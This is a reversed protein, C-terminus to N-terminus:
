HDKVKPAIPSAKPMAPAPGSRPPPSALMADFANRFLRSQAPDKALAGVFTISSASFVHGGHGTVHYVIDAGKGDPNMGRAILEGESAVGPWGPELGDTEWGSAGGNYGRAGFISGTTLGTGALLPHSADAMVKFPQHNKVVGKYVVSLLQSGPYGLSSMPERGGLPVKSRTAASLRAAEKASARFTVLGTAADIDVKEYLGNGGAYVLSGGNHLHAYLGQRMSLSWYECHSALLAVRYGAFLDPNRHLDVDDYVDVRYGQKALWQLLMIDSYLSAELRGTPGTPKERSPRALNLRRQHGTLDRCYQSHGGWNNYAHHTLSPVVFAIDAKRSRPGPNVIFPVDRRMGHPGHLRVAYLGSAFGTTDVSVRPRWRCGTALFDDGPLLQLGGRATGSQAPVIPAPEDGGLKLVSWGFTPFTSSVAIRAPEGAIVSPKVPYGQLAANPEVSWGAAVKNGAGCNVWAPFEGADRYNTLRFALLNATPATGPMDPLVGFFAGDGTFYLGNVYLDGLSFHIPSGSGPQWEGEVHRYWLLAGSTAYLVGDADAYLASGTFSFGSLRQHRSTWRRADQDYHSWHLSGDARRGYFDGGFGIVEVYRDWGTDILTPDTWRGEGTGLDSVRYRYHFIRGDGQVAYLSGDASGLVATYASWGHAIVRGHGDNAWASGADAWAANRFWLLAGDAQIAVIQGDGIGAFHLFRQHPDFTRRPAGEVSAPALALSSVAAAAVATGKLVTRRSPRSSDQSEGSERMVQRM